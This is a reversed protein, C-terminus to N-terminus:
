SDQAKSGVVPRAARKGNAKQGLQDMRLRSWDSVASGWELKAVAFMWEEILRGPDSRKERQTVEESGPRENMRNGSEM